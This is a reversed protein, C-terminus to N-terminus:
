ARDHLFTATIRLSVDFHHWALVHFAPATADHSDEEIKLFACEVKCRRIKYIDQILYFADQVVGQTIAAACDEHSDFKFNVEYPLNRAFQPIERGYRNLNWESRVNALTIVLM